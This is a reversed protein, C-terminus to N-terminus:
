LLSTARLPLFLNLPLFPQPTILPNLPDQPGHFINTRRDIGRPSPRGFSLYFCLQSSHKISLDRQHSPAYLRAYEACDAFSLVTMEAKPSHRIDSFCTDAPHHRILPDGLHM